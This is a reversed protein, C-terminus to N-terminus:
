SNFFFMSFYFAPFINVNDLFFAFKARFHTFLEERRKVGWIDGVELSHRVQLTSRVYGYRYPLLHGSTDCASM